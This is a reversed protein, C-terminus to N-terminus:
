SIPRRHARVGNEAIRDPEGGRRGAFSDKRLFLGKAVYARSLAAANIKALERRLNLLGGTHDDDSHSLVVDRIGSLDIKMERANNLVTDPIRERTSCFETGTRKSWHPLAGNEEHRRGCSKHLPHYDHSVPCPEAAALTQAKGAAMGLAAIALMLFCRLLQM